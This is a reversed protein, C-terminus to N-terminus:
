HIVTGEPVYQFVFPKEIVYEELDAHSSREDVHSYRKPFGGVSLYIRRSRILRNFSENVINEPLRTFHSIVSASSFKNNKITNLVISDINNETLPTRSSSM